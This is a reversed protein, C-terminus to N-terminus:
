PGEDRWVPIRRVKVEVLRRVTVRQREAAPLPRVDVEMNGRRGCRGCRMRRPLANVDLDGFVQLLDGPLYYREGPCHGCTVKVLDGRQHAWSLLVILTRRRPPLEPM